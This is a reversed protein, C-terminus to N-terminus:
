KPRQETTRLWCRIANSLPTVSTTVALPPVAAERATKARHVIGDAVALGTPVTAVIPVNAVIPVSAVIQRANVAVSQVANAGTAGNVVIAVTVGAAVVKAVAERVVPM